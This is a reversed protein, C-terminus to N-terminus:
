TQRCGRRFTTIGFYKKGSRPSVLYEVPIRGTSLATASRQARSRTRSGRESLSAKIAAVARTCPIVTTVRFTPSKTAVPTVKSLGQSARLSLKHTARYSRSPLMWITRGCLAASESGIAGIIAYAWGLRPHGYCGFRIQAPRAAM